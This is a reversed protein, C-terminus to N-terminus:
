DLDTKAQHAAVVIAAVLGLRHDLRNTSDQSFDVLLHHGILASKQRLGGVTQEDVRFDLKQPIVGNTLEHLLARKTSSERLTCVLANGADVIAWAEEFFNAWDCGVGGIKQGTAPDTVELFNNYGEHKGDQACLIEQAKKEDAFIHISTTFPSKWQIKEEAYLLLKGDSSFIRFKDSSLGKRKIVFQTAAFLLNM